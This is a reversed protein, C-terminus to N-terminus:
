ENNYRELKYEINNDQAINKLSKKFTNIDLDFPINLISSLVFMPFGSIPANDIETEMKEININNKKFLDSYLYIIGENDAVSITFSYRNYKEQNDTKQLTKKFSVELDAIKNLQNKFEDIKEGNISILMLLTFDSGLLIMKSNEINANFSLIIESIEAVIGPRDPGFANIILKKM